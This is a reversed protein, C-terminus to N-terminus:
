FGGNIITSSKSKAAREPSSSSVRLYPNTEVGMGTKVSVVGNQVVAADSNATDVTFKTKIPDENPIQEPKPLGDERQKHQQHPSQAKLSSM